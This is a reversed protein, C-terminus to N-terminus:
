VQLKVLVLHVQVKVLQVQPATQVQFDQLAQYVRLVLHEVLVQLAVILQFAVLVQYVVPAMQVRLVTQVQIEQPKLTVQHAQHLLPLVQPAMLVVQVQPELPVRLVQQQVQHVRHVM